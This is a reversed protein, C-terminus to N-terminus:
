TKLLLLLLLQNLYLLESFGNKDVCKEDTRQLITCM